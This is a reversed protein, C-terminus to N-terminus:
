PFSAPARHKSSTRVFNIAARWACRAPTTGRALQLSCRSTGGLMLENASASPQSPICQMTLIGGQKQALAAHAFVLMLLLAGVARLVRSLRKM